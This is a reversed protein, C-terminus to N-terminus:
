CAGWERQDGRKRRDGRLPVLKADRSKRQDPVLGAGQLRPVEEPRKADAPLIPPPQWRQGGHLGPRYGRRGPHRLLRPDEAGLPRQSCLRQGQQPPAPAPRHHRRSAVLSRLGTLVPSISAVTNEDIGPLYRALADLIVLGADKERVLDGLQGLSKPQSLDLPSLDFHLGDPPDIGRGLCLAALRRQLTQRSTDLCFYLVNMPPAQDQERRTGGEALVEFDCSERQDRSGEWERFPRPHLRDSREPHCVSVPSKPLGFDGPNSVRWPIGGSAAAIALDLALFTKGSGVEGALLNLGGKLILDQVLWAPSSAADCALGAATFALRSPKEPPPPPTDQRLIYQLVAAIKKNLERNDGQPKRALEGINEMMRVVKRRYATHAVVELYYALAAEHPANELLGMMYDIGGTAEDFRAGLKARGVLRYISRPTLPEGLKHLTEALMWIIRCLSREFDASALRPLIEGAREPHALLFGVVSEEASFNQPTGTHDLEFLLQNLDEYAQEM